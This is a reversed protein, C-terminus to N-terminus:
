HSQKLWKSREELIGKGWFLPVFLVKKKKKGQRSLIALVPDLSCKM